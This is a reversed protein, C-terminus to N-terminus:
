IVLSTLISIFAVDLAKLAMRAPDTPDVPERVKYDAPPQKLEM